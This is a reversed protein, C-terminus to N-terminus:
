TVALEEGTPVLLFQNPLRMRLVKAIKEMRAAYKLYQVRNKRRHDISKAIDSIGLVEQIFFHPPLIIGRLKAARDISDWVEDAREDNAWRNLHAVDARSLRPLSGDVPHGTSPYKALVTKFSKTM